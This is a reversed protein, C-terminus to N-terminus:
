LFELRNNTQNTVIEQGQSPPNPPAVGTGSVLTTGSKPGLEVSRVGSNKRARVWYFRTIGSQGVNDTWQASDGVNVVQPSGGTLSASTNWIVEYYDAGISRTWQVENSFSQPTVKLNTPASPPAIQGVLDVLNQRLDQLYRRTQPELGLPVEPIGRITMRQGVKAM